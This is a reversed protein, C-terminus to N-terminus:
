CCKLIILHWNAIGEGLQLLQFQRWVNGLHGRLFHPALFWFFVGSQSGRPEPKTITPTIESHSNEPGVPQHHIPKMQSRMEQTEGWEWGAGSAEDQSSRSNAAGVRVEPDKCQFKRWISKDWIDAHSVGEGELRQELTVKEILRM